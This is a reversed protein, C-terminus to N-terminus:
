SATRCVFEALQDHGAQLRQEFIGAIACQGDGDVNAHGAGQGARQEGEVTTIAAVLQQAYRGSAANAGRPKAVVRPDAVLRAVVAVGEELLHQLMGAVRQAIGPQRFEIGKGGAFLQLQHADVVLDAEVFQGWGYEVVHALAALVTIGKGQVAIEQEGVVLDIEGGEGMHLPGLRLPFLVDVLVAGLTDARGVGPVRGTAQVRDFLGTFLQGPVVGFGLGPSAEPLADNARAFEGESHQCEYRHHAADLAGYREAAIGEDGQFRRQGGIGHDVAAAAHDSAFAQTDALLEEGVQRAQGVGVSGLCTALLYEHGDVQGQQQRGGDAAGTPQHVLQLGAAHGGYAEVVGRQRM